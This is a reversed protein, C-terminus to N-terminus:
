RFAASTADLLPNKYGDAGYPFQLGENITWIITGGYGNDKVWQAKAQVTPVDEYTLFQTAPGPDSPYQDTWAPHFESPWSLATTQAASDWTSVVGGKNEFYRVINGYSLTSDDEFVSANGYSQLAATVPAGVARGYFGIGVGLKAKPIGLAAWAALSSAVDFPHNSGEGTLPDLYWVAWGPYAGSGTYTMVNLQDVSGYAQSWMQSADTDIGLNLNVAGVPVTILFGPPAAARLATVLSKFDAYNVSDEWDLDVGDYNWEACAAVIDSVLQTRNTSSAAAAFGVGAGGGGLSILPRTGGAHAASAFDAMGTAGLNDIANSSDLTAYPSNTTPAAPARPEVFSLAAHTLDAWAIKDLPYQSAQWVAWYGYVWKGSASAGGSGASGSAGATGGSGANASGGNAGSNGAAGGSTTGGNATGGNVGSNGAAGGANGSVGASSTGGSGGSSAGAEGSPTATSSSSSCAVSVSALGLAVCCSRVNALYSATM